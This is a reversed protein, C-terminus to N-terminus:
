KPTASVGHEERAAVLPPGTILRAGRDFTLYQIGWRVFVIVRNQFGVLYMLHVFLWLLWAILGKVHLKGIEVVASKRGIVALSGKDHYHFPPPTKGALRDRIVRAAYRGQQMAVPAVGPVPHGNQEFHALDGVVFIEPHGPITLDRNVLVHGQQDLAAGAHDKLVQGFDSPKVGAAWLVTRAPIYEKGDVTVGGADINTVRVGTRPQVGLRILSQEAAESLDEPYTPLVHRSGELLIIRSTQPDIRRFDHRLTDTAIEALAGALEVGTPGAGVIVFTLWARRRAPDSEREAAEFAYLIKHRIATADEITKLGPAVQAWDSHHFYFNQAGTAVILTDYEISGDALIVTRREADLSVADGLLVRANKQRRLTARLPASIEGPSLSGTAVQYLLPQFLHFNRRDLLTVEVDAHRLAKVAELGGFGGGLILVREV